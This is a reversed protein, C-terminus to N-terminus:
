PMLTNLFLSIDVQMSQKRSNYNHQVTKLRSYDSQLSAKKPLIHNFVFVKLNLFTNFHKFVWYPMTSLRQFMNSFQLWFTNIKTNFYCKKHQFLLVEKTSIVVSRKLTYSQWCCGRVKGSLNLLAAHSINTKANIILMMTLLKQM